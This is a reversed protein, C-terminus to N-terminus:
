FWANGDDIVRQLDDQVYGQVRTQLRSNKCKRALINIYKHDKCLKWANQM